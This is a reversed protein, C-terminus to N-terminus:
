FSIAMQISKFFGANKEEFIAVVHKHDSAKSNHHLVEVSDWVELCEANALM